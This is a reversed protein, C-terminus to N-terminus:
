ETEGSKDEKTFIGELTQLIFDESWENEVKDLDILEMGDDSREFFHNLLQALSPNKDLIDASIRIPTIKDIEEGDLFPIRYLDEEAQIIYKRVSRSDRELTCVDLKSPSNNLCALFYSNWINRGAEVIFLRINVADLKVVEVNLEEYQKVIVNIDRKEFLMMNFKALEDNEVEKFGKYRLAHLTHVISM